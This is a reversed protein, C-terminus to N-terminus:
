STMFLTEYSPTDTLCHIKHEKLLINQGQFKAPSICHQECTRNNKLHAGNAWVYKM